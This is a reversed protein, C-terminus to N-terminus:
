LTCTFHATKKPIGSPGDTTECVHLGIKRLPHCKTKPNGWKGRYKMWNPNSGGLSRQGSFFFKITSMFSRLVKTKGRVDNYIVEVNKWTQWPQGFGNIDYLRPVRVFRHKGPTAWLGHSGEASFLVPHNDSTIVTKPFSPKQFIGKRTEQSKFEFTGTLRDFSYFAGADHASVYM